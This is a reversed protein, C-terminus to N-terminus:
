LSIAYVLRSKSRVQSRKKSTHGKINWTINSVKKDLSMLKKCPLYCWDKSGASPPEEFYKFADYFKFHDAKDLKRVVGGIKAKVIQYPFKKRYISEVDFTSGIMAIPNGYRNIHHSKKNKCETWGNGDTIAGDTVEEEESSEARQRGKRKKTTPENTANDIHVACLLL